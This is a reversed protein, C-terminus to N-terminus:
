AGHEWGPREPWALPDGRWLLRREGAQGTLRGVPRFGADMLGASEPEGAVLPVYDDGATARELAESLTRASGVVDLDIEVGLWSADALRQADILLGDSVDMSAHAHRAIAPAWRAPDPWPRRYAAVLGPADDGSKLQGQLIALGRGASGISDRRVTYLTDGARGGSRRVPGEGLCRGTLAMTVTLPGPAVVTDGGVLAVGFATLAEGLGRAFEAARERGTDSPWSVSMLAERPLAGKAVIDSVNVALAKWGLTDAPDNPLFHVGEVLTDMSAILVGDTDLVAVDDQLACAGPARVLPKLCHELFWTEFGPM